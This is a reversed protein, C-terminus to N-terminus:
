KEIQFSVLKKPSDGNFDATIRNAAPHLLLKPGIPPRALEKHRGQPTAHHMM